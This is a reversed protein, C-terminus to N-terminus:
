TANPEEEEVVVEGEYVVLDVIRHPLLYRMVPGDKVMFGHAAIEKCQAQAEFENKVQSTVALVKGSQHDQYYIGIFLGHRTTTAKVEEEKVKRAM